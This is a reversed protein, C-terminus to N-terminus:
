VKDEGKRKNGDVAIWIFAATLLPAAVFPAAAAPDMRFADTQVPIHDMDEPNEIRQGRVLLRHTNVGYPTCTVLTCLDKGTEPALAEIEQPKAVLIQDVEYTLVQNLVNLQFLDGEKMQDLDTFLRASPLGRHGSIVCHRGSGGVPLSTGEIHGAGAQLVTEDTGHYVPLSVGICPIELTGMVGNGSLDLLEQYWQHEQLSMHYPNEKASLQQNYREAERRMAEYEAQGMASVQQQYSEIAQSQHFSNWWDSVSPYLMLGMGM